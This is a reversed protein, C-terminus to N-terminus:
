WSNELVGWCEEALISTFRRGVVGQPTAYWRVSQSDIRRWHSQWVANDVVGGDLQLGEEHYPFEGYVEWLLLQARGPNFGPLNMDDEQLLERTQGAIYTYLGGIEGEIRVM